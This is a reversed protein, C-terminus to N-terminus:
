FGQPLLPQPFASETNAYVRPRVQIPHVEQARAEAERRERRKKLAKRVIFDVVGIGVSIGASAILLTKYEDNTIAIATSSDKFPWPLYASDMGNYFYRFVEYFVTSFLVTFPFTGFAIIEARRIDLVLPNFESKKYPETEEEDKKSSSEAAPLLSSCLVSFVAAAVFRRARAKM